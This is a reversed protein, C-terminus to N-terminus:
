GELGKVRSSPVESMPNFSFGNLQCPICHQTQFLCKCYYRREAKFPKPPSCHLYGTGNAPSVSPAALFSLQLGSWSFMHPAIHFRLWMSSAFSSKCRFLCLLCSTLHVVEFIRIPSHTRRIFAPFPEPSCFRPAVSLLQSSVPFPVLAMIFGLSSM